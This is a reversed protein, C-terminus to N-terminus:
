AERGNSGVGVSRGGVDQFLAHGAYPQHQQSVEAPTELAVLLPDPYCDYLESPATARPGTSTKSCNPHLALMPDAYHLLNFPYLTSFLGPSEYDRRFMEQRREMMMKVKQHDVRGQQALQQMEAMSTDLINTSRAGPCFVVEFGAGSPIIFTSTQDDFAFSYADPCVEKVNKSYDGPRCKSPSNYEGTCCDEPKNNKACASFCPNFSPRQINDDPYPYVGDGPKEPPSQQLDWPCWRSIKKQDVQEEWPLPYSTNTRLFSPHEPYPDYGQPELLGSTGQCSPNTLNPPIDDLTVNELPQLVMAIPLNYGDVLSIDYYTHGDGADLTFEALSVPVDGGVRCNLIGNCDGSYCAKGRGNAPGSGDDNFSCNTRGWVRGQWDESVTQNKTEGSSLKFGTLEPGNGSQTSIGPWIDDPCKNTVLLPTIDMKRKNLKRPAKTAMHHVGVVFPIEAGLLLAACLYQCVSGTRPLTRMMLVVTRRPCTRGLHPHQEFITHSSPIAQQWALQADHHYVTLRLTSSTWRTCLFLSCPSSLGQLRDNVSHPLRLAVNVSPSALPPQGPQQWPEAAGIVSGPLFLRRREAKAVVLVHCSPDCKSRGILGGGEAAGEGQNLAHITCVLYCDSEEVLSFKGRGETVRFDWKAEKFEEREHVKVPFMEGPPTVSAAMAKTNLVPPRWVGSEPTVDYRLITMAAMALIEGSAFHRGPCINPSAGFSMFATARRQSSDKMFRRPNFDDTDEGWAVAQRNITPAPMQLISGEKLLWQGNLLIDKCVVRTPAGNSRLRLTEQFSSVLLHCSDRISALDVVHLGTDPEIVLGNKRIEERLELLLSPRSYIDFLTWFTSPVTNSLIGIGAAAELKAIDETTAGADHQVKWRNYTLESSNEHGRAKYYKVFASVLRERAKFSKRSTISPMINVLLPTLRSEFAWLSDEVERQKYPNLSGYIADTSAVTIAHRCWAHLDFSSRDNHTTALEDVSLKLFKIMKENMRDLGTGLLAPHMSHLVKNNLGQGGNQEERLLGLGPGTVGAM